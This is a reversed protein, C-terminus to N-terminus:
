IKQRFKEYLERLEQFREIGSKNFLIMMIKTEENLTLDFNGIGYLDFGAKKLDQVMLKAEKESIEVEMKTIKVQM